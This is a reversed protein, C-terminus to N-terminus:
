DNWLAKMHDVKWRARRRRLPVTAGFSHYLIRVLFGGQVRSVKRGGQPLRNVLWEVFVMACGESRGAPGTAAVSSPPFCLWNVKVRTTIEGDLPTLPGNVKGLTTAAVETLSTFALIRSVMGELGVSSPWRRMCWPRNNDLSVSVM